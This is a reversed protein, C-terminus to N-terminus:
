ARAFGWPQTLKRLAALWAAQYVAWLNLHALPNQTTNPKPRSLSFFPAKRPPKSGRGPYLAKTTQKERPSPSIDSLPYFPLPFSFSSPSHSLCGIVGGRGWIRKLAGTFGDSRNAAM